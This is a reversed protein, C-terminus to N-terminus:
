SINVLLSCRFNIVLVSLSCRVKTVAHDFLSPFTLFNAEVKLRVGYGEVPNGVPLRITGSTPRWNPIVLPGSSSDVTIKYNTAEMDGYKGGTCRLPFEDLIAKGESPTIVCHLPRMFLTEFFWFNYKYASIRNISRALCRVYILGPPRFLSPILFRKRNSSMKGYQYIKIFVGSEKDVNAVEWNYMINETANCKTELSASVNFKFWRVKENVIVLQANWPDKGLSVTIDPPECKRSVSSSILFCFIFLM